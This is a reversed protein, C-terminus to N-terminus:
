NNFLLVNTKRWEWLINWYSYIFHYASQREVKVDDNSLTLETTMKEKKQSVSRYSVATNKVVSKIM